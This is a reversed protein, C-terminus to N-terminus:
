VRSYISSKKGKGTGIKEKRLFKITGNALGAKVALYADNYSIGKTTSFSTVTFENAPLEIVVEPKKEKVEKKDPIVEVNVSVGEVHCYLSTPKGKVNRREKRVFRISGKAIKGQVEVYANAYTLNNTAAYEAISFEGVVPAHEKAEDSEIDAIADANKCIEEYRKKAYEKHAGGISWATFGFNTEGTPYCEEDEDTIKGFINTGARRTKIKFIDYDLVLGNRSREYWAVRDTRAIQTYTLPNQSFGEAGSVFTKDLTIM